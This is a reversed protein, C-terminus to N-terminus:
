RDFFQIRRVFPLAEIQDHVHHRRFRFAFLEKGTGCDGTILVSFSNATARLAEEKLETMVRSEGIITEFSYRTSRLNLLEAEYQKVKSELHGVKKALITIERLDSFMVLGFVAIVKDKKKVPIRQVVINLGKIQQIHNIEAKGTKGVIHMRTNEVVETCHKGIQKEHDLGLFRGYPENFHTVYGDPDTVMIGNQISDFIRRYIDINKKLNIEVKKSM